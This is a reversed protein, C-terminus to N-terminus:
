VKVTKCYHWQMPAHQSFSVVDKKLAQTENGCCLSLCESWTYAKTWHKFIACINLLIKGEWARRGKLLDRTHHQKGSTRTLLLPSDSPNKHHSILQPNKEMLEALCGSTESRLFNSPSWIQSPLSYFKKINSAQLYKKNRRNEMCGIVVPAFTFDTLIFSRYAKCLDNWM